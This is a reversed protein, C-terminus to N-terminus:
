PPSPRFKTYLVLSTHTRTVGRASQNIKGFRFVQPDVTANRQRFPLAGADTSGAPNLSTIVRVASLVEMRRRRRRRRRISTSLATRTIVDRFGAPEVSAPANGNLCRLAVTSGWTKRKPFIFWLARPTVRVWVERTNYVFNRGEGGHLACPGLALQAM